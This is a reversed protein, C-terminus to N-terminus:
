GSGMRGVSEPWQGFREQGLDILCLIQSRMVANQWM